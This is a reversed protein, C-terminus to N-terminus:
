VQIVVITIMLILTLTLGTNELLITLLKELNHLTNKSFKKGSQYSRNRDLLYTSKVINMEIIGIIRSREIKTYEEPIKGNRKHQYRIM